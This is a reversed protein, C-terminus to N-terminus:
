KINNLNQSLFKEFIYNTLKEAGYENLHSNGLWDKEDNFLESCLNNNNLNIFSIDNKMNKLNFPGIDLSNQSKKYGPMEFVLFRIDNKKCISDIKYLYKNEIIAKLNIEKNSKNKFETKDGVQRKTKYQGLVLEAKRHDSSVLLKLMEISLWRFKIMPLNKYNLWDFPKYNYEIIPHIAEDSKKRELSNLSATGLLVFKPNENNELYHILQIYNSKLNAGGIAFNYSSLGKKTLLEADIGDMVLSNGLALCSYNQHEMNVAEISKKFDYNYHEIILLYAYNVAFFLLTFLIIKKLFRLM